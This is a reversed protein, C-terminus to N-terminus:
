PGQDEDEESPAPAGGDTKKTGMKEAMYAEDVKIENKAAEKLREMYLAFAEDQKQRILTQLYVDKDKTFEEKTAVKHDKLSVLVYGSDTKLVDDMGDKDKASFAFHIVKATDDRNLGAIPDGGKNFPASAVLMPRSPDSDPGEAVPAPPTSAKDGPKVKAGSKDTLAAPPKTTKPAISRAADDLAKQVDVGSKIAGQIREAMAKAADEAAQRMYLEVAMLHHMQADTMEPDRKIAHYGFQTEVPEDTMEGPKLKDAAEKFPAVFGGTQDGVDGGNGASSDDSVDKAVAAFDEGKRVRLIAAAVRAKAADKEAATAGPSTKVLIHRIHPTKNESATEDVLRKNEDKAAWAEVDKDAPAPLYKLVFSPRVTITNLSATSKEDIYGALAEAESVRVPTRVLDRVKAALIERAQEERFETPSRGMTGKLQREYVRMDFHHSKSDRFNMYTKGDFVRVYPAISMKDAPLSVHVVGSYIQDTVEEDTESLGLREADAVLLDREILGDLAVRLIGMQKAKEMMPEGNEGRPIMLRYAALHDKPTICRGRVRAACQESLSAQKKGASPNFGLVFVLVIGLILVGYIASSLGKSRFAQLM